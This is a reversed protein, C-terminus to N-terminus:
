AAQQCDSAASLASRIDKLSSKAEVVEETLKENEATLLKCKDSLAAVRERTQASLLRKKVNSDPDEDAEGAEGEGEDEVEEEDSTEEMDKKPPM